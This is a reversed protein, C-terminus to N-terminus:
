KGVFQNGLANEIAREVVIADGLRGHLCCFTGHLLRTQIQFVRMNARRYFAPNAARFQRHAIHYVSTNICWHEGSYYRVIMQVRFEIDVFVGVDLRHPMNLLLFFHRHM